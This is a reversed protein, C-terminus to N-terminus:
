QIRRRLDEAIEEASMQGARAERFSVSSDGFRSSVVLKGDDQLEVSGVADLRVVQLKGGSMAYIAKSGVGWTVAAKDAFLKVYDAPSGWDLFAKFIAALLLGFSILALFPVLVFPFASVPGTPAPEGMTSRLYLIDLLLAGGGAALAMLLTRVTSSNEACSQEYFQTAMVQDLQGYSVYYEPDDGLEAAAKVIVDRSEGRRKAMEQDIGELPNQTGSSKGPITGAVANM